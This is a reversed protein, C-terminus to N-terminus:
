YDFRIQPSPKWCHAGGGQLYCLYPVLNSGIIHLHCNNPQIEWSFDMGKRNGGNKQRSCPRQLQLATVMKHSYPMKSLPIWRSLHCLILVSLPQPMSTDRLQWVLEPNSGESNMKHPLFVVGTKNLGIASIANNGEWERSNVTQWPFKWAYLLTLPSKWHVGLIVVM